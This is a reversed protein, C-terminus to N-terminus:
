RGNVIAIQVREHRGVHSPDIEWDRDIGNTARTPNFARSWARLDLTYAGADLGGNNPDGGPVLFTADTRSHSTKSPSDYWVSFDDAPGSRTPSGGGCGSASLGVNRLHPHSATYAVDIEVPKPHGDPGLPRRLVPCELPLRSEGDRRDDAV